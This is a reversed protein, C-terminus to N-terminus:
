LPPLRKLDIHPTGGLFSGDDYTALSLADPSVALDRRARMSAIARVAQTELDVRWLTAQPESCVEEPPQGALAYGLCEESWVYAAAPRLADGSVGAFSAANTQIGPLLPREEGSAVDLWLSNDVIVASPFDAEWRTVAKVETHQAELVPTVAGSADIIVYDSGKRGFLSVADPAFAIPVDM